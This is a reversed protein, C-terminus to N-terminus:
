LFYETPDINYAGRELGRTIWLGPEKENVNEKCTLLDLTVFDERVKKGADLILLVEPRLRRFRNQRVVVGVEGTNLEVLTGNPFVGVAQIFLEVLQANFATGAMRKLERVADYPSMARAYSRETIMADYCDVIAAIRGLLPIADGALRQPYGSGDSREHHTGVMTLIADNLNGAATLLEKGYAVHARIHRWEEDTPKGAKKLLAPPLKTKGVDLLLAGTGVAKLDDKGLGLHRGFALAWVSAALSHSYLYDDAHKLRALWGMADRNRLVSDVMSDVVNELHPIDLAAGRRLNDFISSVARKAEGYATVALTLETQLPVADKPPVSDIFAAPNLSLFELRSPEPAAKSQAKPAAAAQLQAAESATVEVYVFRCLRRLQALEEESEIAFGQFLFPTETWPRDLRSVYLGTKLQETGLQVIVKSHDLSKM